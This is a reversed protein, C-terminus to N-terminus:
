NETELVPSFNETFDYSYMSLYIEEANELMGKTESKYDKEFADLTRQSYTQFDQYTSDIQSVLERQLKLDKPMYFDIEYSGSITDTTLDTELPVIRKAKFHVMETRNKPTIRKLEFSLKKDNKKWIGKYIGDKFIGKFTEEENYSNWSILNLSDKESTKIQSIDIPIEQSHYYYFGSYNYGVEKPSDNYTLEMTVPHKDIKGELILYENTQASLHISILLFLIAAFYKM